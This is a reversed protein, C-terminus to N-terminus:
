WAPVRMQRLQMRKMAKCRMSEGHVKVCLIPLHLGSFITFLLNLFAEGDCLLFYTQNRFLCKTHDQM